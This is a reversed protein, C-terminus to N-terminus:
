RRKSAPIAPRFAFYIPVLIMSVAASTAVFTILLAIFWGNSQLRAASLVAGLWTVLFTLIAGLLALVGPLASATDHPGRLKSSLLVVGVVALGVYLASAVCGVRKSM